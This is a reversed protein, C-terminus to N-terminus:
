RRSRRSAHTTAEGEEGEEDSSSGEEGEEGEEGSSGEEEGDEAEAEAEEDEEGDEEEGESEVGEEGQDEDGQDEDEDVAGAARRKEWEAEAGRLLRLLPAHGDDRALDAATFGDFRLTPNAGHELLCRTLRTARREVAAHLPTHGYANRRNLLQRGGHLLLLQLTELVGPRSSLASSSSSSSLSSSSSSSAAALVHLPSDGSPVGFCAVSAGHRVVLEEAAEWQEAALAALLATKGKYSTDAPMGWAGLLRRLTPVDGRRAARLLARGASEAHELHRRRYAARGEASPVRAGFTALVAGAWLEGDSCCVRWERCVAALRCWEPPGLGVVALVLSVPSAVGNVPAVAAAAPNPPPAAAAAQAARASREDAQRQRKRALEQALQVRKPRAAEAVASRTAAPADVDAGTGSSGSSGAAGGSSRGAAGAGGEAGGQQASLAARMLDEPHRARSEPADFLQEVCAGTSVARTALLAQLLPSVELAECARRSLQVYRTLKHQKDESGAKVRSFLSQELTDALEDLEPLENISKFSRALHERQTARQGAEASRARQAPLPRPDQLLARWDQKCQVALERVAESVRSTPKALRSVIKGVPVAELDAVTTRLQRLLRLLLVLQAAQDEQRREAEVLCELVAELAEQRAQKTALIAQQHALLQATCVYARARRAALQPTAPLM